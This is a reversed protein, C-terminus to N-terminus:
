RQTKTQIYKLYKGVHLKQTIEKSHLGNSFPTLVKANHDNKPSNKAVSKCFGGHRQVHNHFFLSCYTAESTPLLAETQVGVPKVCSDASVSTVAAESLLPDQPGAANFTARGGSSSSPPTKGRCPIQSCQSASVIISSWEALM